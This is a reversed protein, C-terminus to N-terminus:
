STSGRGADGRSLFGTLRWPPLSKSFNEIFDLHQEPWDINEHSPTVFWPRHLAPFASQKRWSAKVSNTGTKIEGVQSVNGPIDSHSPKAQAACAAHSAKPHHACSCGKAEAPFSGADLWVASSWTPAVRPSWPKSWQATLSGRAKPVLLLSIIPLPARPRISHKCVLFGEWFEFRQPAHPQSLHWRTGNHNNSRARRQSSYLFRQLRLCLWENKIRQGRRYGLLFIHHNPAARPLIHARASIHCKVHARSLDLLILVPVFSTPQEQVWVTEQSFHEFFARSVKLDPQVIFVVVPIFTRVLTWHVGETPVLWQLM